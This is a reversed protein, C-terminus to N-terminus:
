FITKIYKLGLNTKTICNISKLTLSIVHMIHSGGIMILNVYFSSWAMENLIRYEYMILTM